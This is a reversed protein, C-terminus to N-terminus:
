ATSGLHKPKRKPGDNLPHIIRVSFQFPSMNHQVATLCSFVESSIIMTFGMMFKGSILLKIFYVYPKEM